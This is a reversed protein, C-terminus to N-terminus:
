NGLINKRVEVVANELYAQYTPKTIALAKEAIMLTKETSVEKNFRLKILPLAVKEVAIEKTTLNHPSLFAILNNLEKLVLPQELELYVSICEAVNPLEAKVNEMAQKYINWIERQNEYLHLDVAM